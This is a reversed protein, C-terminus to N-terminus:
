EESVAMVSITNAGSDGTLYMRLAYLLDPTNSFMEPKPEEFKLELRSKHEFGDEIAIRSVDDVLTVYKKTLDKEPSIIMKFGEDENGRSRMLALLLELHKFLVAVQYGKGDHVVKNLDFELCGFLNQYVTTLEEETLNDILGESRWLAISLIEMTISRTLGANDIPNIVEDLLEYQWPLEANGIAFAINRYYKRLLEKDKIAFLLRTNVIAPADKHLCSLFFFLEEKLADPMNESEIISVAKPITEFITNRFKEPVEPESLSHGHNWITLIPFRLSFIGKKIGELAKSIDNEVKEQLISPFSESFTINSGYPGKDNTYINLYVSCGEHLSSEDVAEVFQASHCFLSEGEINVRCYYKGARDISGWEWHGEKRMKLITQLEQEDDFSLLDDLSALKSCCWDLLDSFRKGDEKPFKEFDSWNKRAPFDPVPLSQLDITGGESAPRWEVRVSKFGAKESDFPTFKLEYPNDAGYTYTMDLKCTTEEKLPFSPSKLHANFRLEKNGEGQQLPFSYHTQGAPLTFYGEVPINVTKGRQPTVTADRVLYFHEYHGDRVIRISLEPLHDRWLSISGAVKLWKNLIQGGEVLHQHEYIWQSQSTKKESFITDELPLLFIKNGKWDGEVSNLCTRITENSVVDGVLDYNLIERISDPLHYWDDDIVFSVNGADNALGDLGFLQLLLQSTQCGDKTLNQILGNHLDTNDVNNTPHREWSIGRTAPVLAALEKQYIAEIPTLSFGGEFADIVLVFDNEHVKYQIFNKSSQWAFVAAISKPLPTANEFYFNISKRITETDFDNAWDPVLYTMQDAKIFDHLKRTFVMSADSKVADSLGSKPNFLSKMSITEIDPQLTIAKSFSCDILSTGGNHQPWHQHLLRFPLLAPTGILNTYRPRISCLDMVCTDLQILDGGDWRATSDEITSNLIIALITKPIGRIATTSLGYREQIGRVKHIILQDNEIKLSLEKDGVRINCEDDFLGFVVPTIGGVLSIDNACKGQRNKGVSFAVSDGVSLSNFDINKALNTKHFFLDAGSEPTLFGFKKECDINRIRGRMKLDSLPFLHGNIPLNHSINFTDYDLNLPQQVTRFRSSQNLLTFTEWFIMTIIDRQFRVQDARINDDLSQLWLWGDWTKRYRKDQLLINNPPLNGWVGIESAEDTRNWRQISVLFDECIDEPTHNLANQREILIQELRLLFAKFLRNEATDVSPRRRVAKIYPKASLKERLTRGPMRSLWQVSKSDVERVAHVPLMAHERLIKQRTQGMIAAIADSSHSVIRYIRDKTNRQLTEEKNLAAVAESFEDIGTMLAQGSVPDFSTVETLWSRLLLMLLARNKIEEQDNIAKFLSEVSDIILSVTM